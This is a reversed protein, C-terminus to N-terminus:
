FRLKTRNAFITLTQNFINIFQKITKHQVFKKQLLAIGRLEGSYLDSRKGIEVTGSCSSGVASKQISSNYLWSLCISNFSFCHIRMYDTSALKTKVDETGRRSCLRASLFPDLPADARVNLLAISIIFCFM